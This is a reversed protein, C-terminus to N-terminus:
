PSLRSISATSRPTAYLNDSLNIGGTGFYGFLPTYEYSVEGFILYTNPTALAAPVTISSGKTRATGNLSDSWSITAAGGSSIAIQSLIVVVPASPYPQLVVSTAGLIQQMDSDQITSYQNSIADLTYTASRMKMYVAIARGADITALLVILLMPLMVAFEVAALGRTSAAFRWFVGAPARVIL